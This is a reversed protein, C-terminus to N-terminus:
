CCHRERRWEGLTHVILVASHRLASLRRLREVRTGSRARCRCADELALPSSRYDELEDSPQGQRRGLGIPCAQLGKIYQHTAM